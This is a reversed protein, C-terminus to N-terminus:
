HLRHCPKVGKGVGRFSEKILCSAPFYWSDGAWCVEAATELAEYTSLTLTRPHLGAPELERNQVIGLEPWFVYDAALTTRPM